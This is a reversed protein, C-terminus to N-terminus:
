RAILLLSSDAPCSNRLLLPSQLMRSVIAAPLAVPLVVRGPESVRAVPALSLGKCPLGSGMCRKALDMCPLELRAATPTHLAPSDSSGTSLQGWCVRAKTCPEQEWMYRAPEQVM